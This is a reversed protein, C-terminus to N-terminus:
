SKCIFLLFTKLLVLDGGAKTRNLPWPVSRVVTSHGITYIIHKVLVTVTDKKGPLPLMSQIQHNVQSCSQTRWVKLLHCNLDLTLIWIVVVLALVPLLSMSNSQRTSNMSYATLRRIYNFLFQSKLIQEKHWALSTSFSHRTINEQVRYSVSRLLNKSSIM